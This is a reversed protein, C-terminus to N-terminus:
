LDGHDRSPGMADLVMLAVEVQTTGAREAVDRIVAAAEDVDIGRRAALVGVAQQVLSQDELTSPAARATDRTRFALDADAVAGPAWSGTITALEEHHGDFAGTEAAYLNISGVSTGEADLMPLTLSSHIGVAASARAFEAWRQEDLPDDVDFAVVEGSRGGEVCPGDELYQSADARRVEESTAVLTFSVGHDLLAVSLGVCSPVVARVREATDRLEALLDDDTTLGLEELATRTEPIPEM